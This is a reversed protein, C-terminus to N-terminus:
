VAQVTNGRFVNNAAPPGDLPDRAKPSTAVV